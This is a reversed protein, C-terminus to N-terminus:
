RAEYVCYPYQPQHDVRAKQLGAELFSPTQLSRIHQGPRQAPSLRRWDREFHEPSRRNLAGHHRIGNYDAVARKTKGRLQRLDKLPWRQLYEGKIIGNIREAFANDSATDGMSIAVKHHRLLQLYRHSSYQSGRDSHHILGALQQPGYADLARKLARVNAKAQLTRSAAWGVIRRTYVDIIFTLYYFQEGVKIYTIDSQWVQGPGDVWRGEVLNKFITHVPLTTRIPNPQRGVGYGLQKFVRCFADRGLGAPALQWYLKELGEGPHETRRQDVRPILRAILELQQQERKFHAWVAQKSLGLSRYLANLSHSLQRQHARYWGM